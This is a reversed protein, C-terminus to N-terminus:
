SKVTLRLEGRWPEAGHARIGEQGKSGPAIASKAARGRGWGRGPESLPAQPSPGDCFSHSGKGKCPLAWGGGTPVRGRLPHPHNPRAAPTGGTLNGRVYIAGKPVEFGETHCRVAEQHMLKCPPATSSPAVM